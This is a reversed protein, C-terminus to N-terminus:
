PYSFASGHENTKRNRLDGVHNVDLLMKSDVLEDIHGDLRQRKGDRRRLNVSDMSDEHLIQVIQNTKDRRL